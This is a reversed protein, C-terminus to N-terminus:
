FFNYKELIDILEKKSLKEWITKLGPFSRNQVINTGPIYVASDGDVPISENYKLALDDPYGNILINRYRQESDKGSKKLKRCCPEYTKDRRLTGRPPVYYGEKPCTGYFIYPIPRYEGEGPNNGERNQCKEPQTTRMNPIKSLKLSPDDLILKSYYNLLKQIELLFLKVNNINNLNEDM